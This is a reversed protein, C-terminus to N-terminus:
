RSRWLLRRLRGSALRSTRFPSLECRSSGVGVATSHEVCTAPDFNMAERCARDYADLESPTLDSFKARLREQIPRLWDKGFEMAFDLGSNLVDVDVQGGLTGPELQAPRAIALRRKVLVPQAFAFPRNM